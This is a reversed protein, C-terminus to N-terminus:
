QRLSHYIRAVPGGTVAMAAALRRHADVTQRRSTRVEVIANAPLADMATLLETRNTVPWHALGFSGAIGEFDLQPPTALHEDFVDRERAVPLFDFIAGGGNDVLIITLAIGLRRALQLSGVDHALAVDGTLLVVRKAAVAAIGLATAITGDIGNAGRNALVTPADDIAPLLSELQRVSMSASTVLVFRSDLRRSLERVVHLETLEAEALVSEIVDRAHADATRWPTLWDTPHAKLMVARTLTEAPDADISCTLVGNPDQWAGEPDVAIHECQLGALWARLPKSTPLDGVYLVADPQMMTAFADDRLLLDYHAIASPGTRANSLPDALLPWSIRTAFRSVAERFHGAREYRGAIVVGRHAGALQNDLVEAATNHDRPVVIRRLTPTNRMRRVLENGSQENHPEELLPERLAVNIHVPGPHPGAAIAMARCALRRIWREREPTAVHTGLDFFWRVYCGFIKVQDIAQGAGVARAEPPRDATLVLLPVRAESAEVVAPLYNATATGSTCVLAAPAGTAKGIGVAFFGATREDIVSWSRLGPQRVLALVLPVCRNGPSTCVGALGSAQLEEAFALLLPDAHRASGEDAARPKGVTTKPTQHRIDQYTGAAVPEATSPPPAKATPAAKITSSM